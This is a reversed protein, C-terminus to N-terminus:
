AAESDNRPLAIAALTPRLPIVPALHEDNVMAVHAEPQQEDFREADPPMIHLVHEAKIAHLNLDFSLPDLHATRVLVVDGVEPDLPAVPSPCRRYSDPETDIFGKAVVVYAICGTGPLKDTAPSTIIGATVGPPRLAAVILENDKVQGKLFDDARFGRSYLRTALAAYNM